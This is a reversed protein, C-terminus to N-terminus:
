SRAAPAPRPAPALRLRGATGLDFVAAVFRTREGGTPPGTLLWVRAAARLAPPPRSAAADLDRVEWTQLTLLRIKGLGDAVDAQLADTRARWADDSRATGHELEPILVAHHGPELPGLHRVVGPEPPPQALVEADVATYQPEPLEADGRPRDPRSEAPM